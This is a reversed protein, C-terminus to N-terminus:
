GDASAITLLLEGSTVQMGPAIRVPGVVGFMTAPVTVKHARIVAPGEAYQPVTASYVFVLLTVFTCFVLKYTWRTWGPSILLIEGYDESRNHHDVAEQRFIDPHM